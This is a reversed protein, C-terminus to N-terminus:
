CKQAGLCLTYYTGGRWVYTKIDVYIAKVRITGLALETEAGSIAAAFRSRCAMWLFQITYENKYCDTTSLSATWIHLSQGQQPIFSTAELHTYPLTKRSWFNVFHTASKRRCKICPQRYGIEWARPVILALTFSYNRFVRYIFMLICFNWYLHYKSSHSRALIYLLDLWFLWKNSQEWKSNHISKNCESLTPSFYSRSLPKNRLQYIHRLRSLPLAGTCLVPSRLNLDWSLGM